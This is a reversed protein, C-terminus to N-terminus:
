HYDSACGDGCPHRGRLGNVGEAVILPVMGLAAVADAWWWGFAANLALGALLIAALWACLSTQKAEIVLAGSGLAMAVRHKARALWPMFLLSAVALGIGVPSEEPARRERLAELAELAVYAALALLTLGILRLARRELQERRAAHDDGHLRWLAALSSTFEIAADVGFGLLSVSGSLAGAVIGVGAEVINYALGLYGLVLGRRVLAARPETAPPRIPVPVSPTALPM